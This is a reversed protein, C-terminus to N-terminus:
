IFAKEAFAAFQDRTAAKAKDKLIRSSVDRSVAHTEPRLEQFKTSFALMAEEDACYELLERPVGTEEAVKKASATRATEQRLAELEAEAKEARANAKEQDAVQAQKLAELEPKLAELEAAAEANKQARNEWKRSEAKWDVEQRQGEQQELGQAQEEAM